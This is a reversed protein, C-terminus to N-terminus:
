CGVSARRVLVGSGASAAIPAASGHEREESRRGSSERCGAACRLRPHRLRLCHLHRLRRLRLRLHLHHHPHRRHHLLHHHLHRRRDPPLPRRHRGLALRLCESRPWRGTGSRRMSSGRRSSECTTPRFPIAYSDGFSLDLSGDDLYRALAFLNRSTYSQGGAVLKGDGQAVLDILYANSGIQTTVIGGEGFSPDLDGNDLYREVRFAYLNSPQSVSGGVAVKGDPAISLAGGVEDDPEQTVVVGNDGFSPDLQGDTLYRVVAFNGHPYEDDATGAVIVKGGPGLTVRAATDRFAPDGVPTQAVGGSGFSGDLGGDAQLRISTFAGYLDSSGVAVIKQDAPQIALGFVVDYDGVNITEIGDNSFSSDLAGSSTYRVFAFDNTQGVQADGALVISGNSGLAIALAQDYGGPVLDIPTRVVGGTGFSPDLSGDPNLRVLVFDQNGGGGPTHAHSSPAPRLPSRAIGRLRSGNPSAPPAPPPPPPPPPPPVPLTSGALLIKGDPQVAVTSATAGYTGVSVLVHGSNGFSVDLDGPATGSAGVLAAPLLIALGAPVLRGLGFVPWSKSLFM